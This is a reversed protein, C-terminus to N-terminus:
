RRTTARLTSSGQVRSQPPQSAPSQEPSKEFIPGKIVEGGLKTTIGDILEAVQEGIEPAASQKITDRVLGLAAGIALGKLKNIESGFMTGLTGLFGPKSEARAQPAMQPEPRPAVREYLGGDPAAAPRPPQMGLTSLSPAVGRRAFRWRDSPLFRSFLRGAVFGAAMSGGFMLWPHNRVHEPIDFAEKVTEVTEAVSERVSEVTGEVAEKVSEVTHEVSSTTSAITGMVKNELSELKQTLDARTDDMQERIVETEHDM